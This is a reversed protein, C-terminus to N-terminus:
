VFPLAVRSFYGFLFHVVLVLFFLQLRQRSTCVRHFNRCILNAFIFNINAAMYRTHIYRAVVM